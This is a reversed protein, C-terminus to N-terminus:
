KFKDGFGRKFKSQGGKGGKMDDKVAKHEVHFSNYLMKADSSNGLLETLEEVSKKLLQKLSGGHRLVRGINLTNIGPLKLLFDHINQNYKEAITDLDNLADESGLAQAAEINPEEKNTKLEEFLQATAYPSPSWVLKLKPFHLTLLQLKQMIEINSSTDNSVMFHRQLHFPKNKDFEILLIPKSYYRAMQVCQNYLRGSNLSGILDSISKREVCIDPTLIYDGITITVPLVEIGRKHILCPLDSRFERMDVIVKPISRAEQSLTVQGGAKRSSTAVGSEEAIEKQIQALIDDSRGDQYKPIVMHQKTEILLEFAQKERRLLTLYAQEEVTKSHLLFFVKLRREQSRQQRAEFVEIHRIATVNLHYMIIYRPQLEELVKDLAIFGYQETKFTQIFVLPKTTMALVSTIDMADLENFSEFFLDEAKTTDFSDDLTIDGEGKQSMTLVYSDRYFVDEPEDKSLFEEVESKENNSPEKPNEAELRKKLFHQKLMSPGPDGKNTETENNKTEKSKENKKNGYRYADVSEIQVKTRDRELSKMKLYNSSLKPLAIDNKMASYFLYKEPGQTLVQNLQYCTRADQCLILVKVPETSIKKNEKKANKVTEKIDNPIELRLVEFLSKWKPCSEPDFEEEKNYVRQKVLNFMQEASDLLIWGSNNLAYSTTRYQKVLAFLAVSDSHITAFMLNRLIKLDAILLKTQASLRYWITDLQSQLIKGFQKTVCNEVTLEDLEAFRNIRKIEKVLFNMLDLLCTQILTMSHTMPLHFEIVQPEFPKLSKQITAHFRPWILLETIFLNRMVKEVHGYGQTFGEVYNSFAKVFGTKNHQRYLRLAFAEQCSEIVNHARLVFIGTILEIPIRKKLLDVVLIRTSIFQIGGQYYTRERENANTSSEYVLHTNLQEKYMKEEYDTSNVVLILNGPDCYVKLLNLFVREYSIGKACVVLADSHLVDLFMQKEFELMRVNSQAIFEEADMLDALERDDPDENTEMVIDSSQSAKANESLNSQSSEM